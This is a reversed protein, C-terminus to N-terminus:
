SPQGTQPFTIRQSLPNRFLAAIMGIREDVVVVNVRSMGQNHIGQAKLRHLSQSLDSWLLAPQNEGRAAMAIGSTARLSVTQHPKEPFSQSEGTGLHGEHAVCLRKQPVYEFLASTLRKRPYHDELALPFGLVEFVYAHNEFVELPRALCRFV